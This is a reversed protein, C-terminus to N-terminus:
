VREVTRYIQPYGPEPNPAITIKAATIEELLIM